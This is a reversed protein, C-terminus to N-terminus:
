GASARAAKERESKGEQRGGAAEAVRARYEAAPVSENRGKRERKYRM